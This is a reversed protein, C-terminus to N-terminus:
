GNRMTLERYRAIEENQREFLEYRRTRLQEVRELEVALQDRLANVDSRAPGGIGQNEREAIQRRLREVNGEATRLIGEVAARSQDHARLLELESRYTTLLMTDQQSSRKAQEFRRREEANTPTASHAAGLRIGHSNIREPGRSATAAEVRDSYHVNGDEDVWKYLRQGQGQVASAFLAISLSAVLAIPGPLRM